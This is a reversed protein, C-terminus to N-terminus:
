SPELLSPCCIISSLALCLSLSLSLSLQLFTLPIAECKHQDGELHKAKAGDEQLPNWNHLVERRGGGGATEEEREECM